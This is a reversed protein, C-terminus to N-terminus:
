LLHDHIDRIFAFSQLVTVGSDARSASSEEMDQEM